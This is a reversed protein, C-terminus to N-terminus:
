GRVGPAKMSGRVAEILQRYEGIAPLLRGIFHPESSAEDPFHLWAYDCEDLLTRYEAEREATKPSGDLLARAATKLRALLELERALFRSLDELSAGRTSGTPDCDGATAVAPEGGAAPLLEEVQEPSVRRVGLPIGRPSIDLLRADGKALEGLQAAYSLLVATTGTHHANKDERHLLNHRFALRWAPLPDLRNSTRLHWRHITSDRAHTHVPDFALDLGCILVESETMRLALEVATIGVSGRPPMSCPRLGHKAMRDFIRLPAFDTSFLWRRPAGHGAVRLATPYTALEGLVAPGPSPGAGSTAVRDGGPTGASEAGAACDTGGDVAGGGVAGGDVAPLGVFDQLNAWQGDLTVVLDPRVGAAVLPAAATDVAVVCVRDRVRRLLPISEELSPGAAAVVVPRDTRLAAADRAELILPLNRLLNRMWRRGLQVETLVNQWQRQIEQTAYDVVSRYARANLSYGGSLTVLRVRRFRRPRLAALAEEVGRQWTPAAAGRRPGTAPREGEGPAGVDAGPAGAETGRGPSPGSDAGPVFTAREDAWLSSSARERTLRALNADIEIALIHSDAPIAQLLTDIGYGLLPSPVIYLTRHEPTVAAARRDAAAVPDRGAYLPRGRYAVQYGGGCPTLTPEDHDRSTGGM